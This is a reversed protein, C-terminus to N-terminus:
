HALPPARQDAHDSAPAVDAVGGQLRQRLHAQRARGSLAPIGTRGDTQRAQRMTRYPDNTREQRSRQRPWYGCSRHPWEALGHAAAMTGSTVVVRWSAAQRLSSARASPGYICRSTRLSTNLGFQRPAEIRCGLRERCWDVLATEDDPAATTEPLSWLGGWIGSPPRQELLVESRDNTLILMTTKRSRRATRPRPTPLEHVRDERWARCGNALPCHYCAARARTCVTAGLDMIAQTYHAVRARPTHREALAWLEKEVAAQGSWGAVAHYRALVRKVNGDLIAHRQGTSLALIAAATSRGIGPLDQMTEIERPFYGGHDHQIAVATRHLNRARAYYGLGSWHHLVDDLPAEALTGVEPFRTMFRQYYPIVTTVQTQQLMIESVWVRYPTVDRQWPLDKRGHRDFWALLATGIGDDGSASTAIEPSPTVIV